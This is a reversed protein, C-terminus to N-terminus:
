PQRRRVGIPASPPPGGRWRDLVAADLVGSDIGYREASARRLWDPDRTPKPLEPTTIEFTRSPAADVLFRAAAHYAPLTELDAPTIPEGLVAALARSDGEAPRFV